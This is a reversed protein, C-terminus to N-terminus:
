EVQYEYAGMDVVATGDGDGDIVRENGDFDTNPLGGVPSNTGADICLSGALLHLDWESVDWSSIDAFLPDVDINGEGDWGGMVNSYNVNAQGSTLSIENPQNDWLICNVITPVPSDETHYYVAGGSDGAINGTLTCNVLTLDSMNSYIAGASLNAQNGAFICNAMKMKAGGCWVAGANYETFNGVFICGEVDVNSDSGCSLAGTNGRSSNNLFICNTIKADCGYGCYIGHGNNNVFVCDSVVLEYGDCCGICGAYRFSYTNGFFKCSRVTVSSFDCRIASGMSGNGNTISFGEIVSDLGERDILRFAWGELECDIVCNEYGNASRVTIAKGLFEIDRNGEGTYIGDAVIVKEGDIAKNIAAQITSFMEPVRLIGDEPHIDLIITVIQPSNLASKSTILLQSEYIGMDLGSTEVNLIVEDLEGSSKGSSPSFTLWDCPEDFEISWDLMGDGPNYITLYQEEPNAGGELAIFDFTEDLIGIYPGSPLVAEDAGMDVRGGMLRTDGDIDVEGAEPIYGPNGADICLSEPLLHLDWEEPYPSSTDAFLPDVDINGEGEFGGRVNCYSVKPPCNNYWGFEYSYNGWLISNEVICNVPIDVTDAVIGGGMISAYNGTFTCGKIYVNERGNIGGGCKASNGIFMSNMVELTEGYSCIGGGYHRESINGLFISESCFAEDGYFYIGGASGTESINNQFICKKLTLTKGSFYLGGGSNESVNDEIVSNEILMDSQWGYVAGGSLATYNDRLICNRILPSSALCCIASGGTNNSSDSYGNIITLGDIVSDQKEARFLYFGRHPEVESGECDIVCNEPGNESRVTIAKGLFDIDRNGDGTYIGDAIVIVDGEVAADIAAQITPYDEPVRIPEIVELLVTIVQTGNGPKSNSVEISCEYEGASLGSVDVSVEVEDTEGSVVGSTPEASLWECDEEVVWSLQGEGTNSIYLIQSAPNAGGEVTSFVLEGPEVVLTPEGFCVGCFVALGIVIALRSMIGSGEAGM